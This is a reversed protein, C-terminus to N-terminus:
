NGRGRYPLGPLSSPFSISIFVSSMSNADSNPKSNRNCNSDCNSRQYGCSRELLGLVLGTPYLLPSDPTPMQDSDNDRDCKFDHGHDDNHDVRRESDDSFRELPTTRSLTM